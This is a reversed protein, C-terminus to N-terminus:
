YVKAKRDYFNSQCIMASEDDSSDDNDAFNIAGM